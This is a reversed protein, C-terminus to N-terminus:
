TNCVSLDDQYNIYCFVSITSENGLQKDFGYLVQNFHLLSQEGPMEMDLCKRCLSDFVKKHDRCQRKPMKLTQGFLCVLSDRKDVEIVIQLM